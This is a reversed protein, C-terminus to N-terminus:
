ARNGLRGNYDLSPLHGQSSHFEVSHGNPRLRHLRGVTESWTTWADALQRWVRRGKDDPSAEAARLCDRARKACEAASMM